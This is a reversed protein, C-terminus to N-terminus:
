ALVAARSNILPRIQDGSSGAAPRQHRGHDDSPLGALPPLSAAAMSAMLGIAHSMGERLAHRQSLARAEAQQRQPKPGSVQEPSLAGALSPFHKICLRCSRAKIPHGSAQTETTAVVDPAPLGWESIPLPRLDRIPLYWRSGHLNTGFSQISISLARRLWGITITRISSGQGTRAGLGGTRAM